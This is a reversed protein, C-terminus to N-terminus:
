SGTEISRQQEITDIVERASRVDPAVGAGAVQVPRPQATVFADFAEDAVRQAYDAVVQETTAAGLGQTILRERVAQLQDAWPAASDVVDPMLNGDDDLATGVISTAPTAAPALANLGDDVLESLFSQAFAFNADGPNALAQVATTSSWDLLKFTAASRAPRVGSRRMWRATM